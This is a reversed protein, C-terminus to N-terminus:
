TERHNIHHHARMMSQKLTRRTEHRTHGLGLLEKERLIMTSNKTM